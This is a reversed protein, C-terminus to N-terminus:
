TREQEINEHMAQKSKKGVNRACGDGTVYIVDTNRGGRSGIENKLDDKEHPRMKDGSFLRTNEGRPGLGSGTNVAPCLIMGGQVCCRYRPAGTSILGAM